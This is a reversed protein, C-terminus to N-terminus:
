LYEHGRFNVAANLMKELYESQKEPPQTLMEQELTEVTQTLEISANREFERELAVEPDIVPYRQYITILSQLAINRQRVIANTGTRYYRYECTVRPVSLLGFRASARILFDWDELSDLQEDFPGITNWCDATHLWCHIPVYNRILLQDHDYKWFPLPMRAITYGDRGYQSVLVFNCGSYVFQTDSGNATIASWLTELHLPYVIDDDDLYSIYRGTAARVGDNLSPTRGAPKEHFIYQIPFYHKFQELIDSLDDGGDNVLVVEFDKFSQNALSTMALELTEPRNKTRVIVSIEPASAPTAQQVSPPPLVALQSMKEFFRLRNRNMWQSHDLRNTSFTKSGHHFVFANPAIALTFGALRARLCFDDDEFNGKLYGEDLGVLLNVVQRKILVCFFVLRDPIPIPQNRSVIKKAYENIQIPSIDVIEPDIQPGEGVYNTIPSVIGLQDDSEATTVLHDLWFPTVLTDNNLIVIYRGRAVQFGLNVARAFGQNEALHAYRLNKLYEAKQELWQATEDTSGNNIVIVEFDVNTHAQYISEICARTYDLANFAPIVISVGNLERLTQQVRVDLDGLNPQALTVPRSSITHNGFRDTIHICLEYKGPAATPLIVSGAYGCHSLEERKFHEAVDPRSIGYTLSGLPIDDFFVEISKIPGKESFAWGGVDLRANALTSTGPSPIDIASRIPSSQITIIRSDKKVRGNSDTVEVVLEYKGPKVNSLQLEGFYGSQSARSGHVAEVDPRPLGHALVTTLGDNESSLNAHLLTKNDTSSAAHQPKHNQLRAIELENTLEDIARNRHYLLQELKTVQNQLETERRFISAIHREANHLEDELHAVRQVLVTNHHSLQQIEAEHHKRVEALVKNDELTDNGQRNLFDIHKHLNDNEQTLHVLRGMQFFFQRVPNIDDESIQLLKEMSPPYQESVALLGLGHGHLLEFHLYQSKLEDWLRWVGFDKEKVNIDHFLVVGQPSMKPLWSEFDHKVSEYTHYGDIHLLDISQSAFSPLADDFTSQILRSFQGYLPDHHERLTQLVENGFHGGQPDGAWTDVAFCQTKLKLEQVAQCFACYSTGYYTGLEVFATPRVLDILFMAFPVHQIWASPALWRPSTLATPHDLPNLHM